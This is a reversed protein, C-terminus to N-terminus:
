STPPSPSASYFSDPPSFLRFVLLSAIHIFDLDQAAMLEERPGEKEPDGDKWLSRQMPPQTRDHPLPYSPPLQSMLSHLPSFELPTSNPVPIIEWHSERAGGQESCDGCLHLSARVDM